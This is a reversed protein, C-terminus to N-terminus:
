KGYIKWRISAVIVAVALLAVLFTEISDGLILRALWMSGIFVGVLGLLVGGLVYINGLWYRTQRIWKSKPM